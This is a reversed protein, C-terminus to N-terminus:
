LGLGWLMIYESRSLVELSEAETTVWPESGKPAYSELSAIALEIDSWLDQYDYGAVGAQWMLRKKQINLLWWDLDSSSVGSRALLERCAATALRLMFCARFLMGVHMNAEDELRISSVARSFLNGRGFIEHVYFRPNMASPFLQAIMGYVRHQYDKYALGLSQRIGRLTLLLICYDITPFGGQPAPEFLRWVISLLSRLKDGEFLCYDEIDTPSYSYKNRSRRDSDYKGVDMGWYTLLSSYYSNSIGVGATFAAVWDSLARGGPCILQEVKIKDLAGIPLSAMATLAGWTGQHTGPGTYLPKLEGAANLYYGENKLALVGNAALYSSSARLEAYYALHGCVGVDNHAISRLAGGLYCWADHLHTICSIALYAAAEANNQPLPLPDVVRFNNAVDLFRRRKFIGALRVRSLQREVASKSTLAIDAYNTM